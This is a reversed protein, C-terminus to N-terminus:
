YSESIQGETILYSNITWNNNISSSNTLTRLRPDKATYLLCLKVIECSWISEFKKM